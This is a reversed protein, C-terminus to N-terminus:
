KGGMAQFNRRAWNLADLFVEASEPVPIDANNRKLFRAVVDGPTLQGNVRTEIITHEVIKGEKSVRYCSGLELKLPLGRDFTKVRLQLLLDVRIQGDAQFIITPKPPQDLYLGGSALSGRFSALVVHIATRYNTEGRSLVENLYGKLEISPAIYESAPATTLTSLSALDRHLSTLIGYVSAAAKENLPQSNTELKLGTDPKTTSSVQQLLDMVLDAGVTNQSTKAAQYFQRFWEPDQVVTGGVVLELQEVQQILGSDSLVYRDKGEVRIPNSAVYEVTVSLTKWDSSIGRVNWSGFTGKRISALTRYFSAVEDGKSCLATGDIGRLQCSSNFIGFLEDKPSGKSLLPIIRETFQNFIDQSM